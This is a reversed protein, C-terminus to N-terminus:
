KRENIDAFEWNQTQSLVSLGFVAWNCLFPFSLLIEEDCLTGALILMKFTITRHLRALCGCLLNLAVSM